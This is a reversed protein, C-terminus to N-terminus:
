IPVLKGVYSMQVNDLGKRIEILNNTYFIFYLDENYPAYTGLVENKFRYKNFETNVSVLEIIKNDNTKINIIKFYKSRYSVNLEKFIQFNERIPLKKFMDDIIKINSSGLLESVYPIKSTDLIHSIVIKYSQYSGPNM